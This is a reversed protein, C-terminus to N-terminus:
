PLLDAVQISITQNSELAISITDGVQFVTRQQYQGLSLGPSTHCEICQDPINIIWYTPIGARAYQVLKTGRDYDLSSDSIECILIVDNAHPHRNRFDFDSGRVVAGDPEPESRDGLTVPLQCRVHFGTEDFYRELRQWRTIARAHRPGHIMPDGGTDSRDKRVLLGEILEIPEGESLVGRAVMEHFQHVNLRALGPAKGAILQEFLVDNM